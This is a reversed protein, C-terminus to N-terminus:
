PAQFRRVWGDWSGTHIVGHDVTIASVQEEHARLEVQLVGNLDRIEIHGDLFGLYVADDGMTVVSLGRPVTFDLLGGASSRVTGDRSFVWLDDGVPAAFSSGPARAVRSLTGGGDGVVLELVEGTRDVLGARTGDASPVVSTYTLAPRNLGTQVETGRLVVPGGTFPLGVIWDDALKKADRMAHLGPLAPTEGLTTSAGVGVVLWGDGVPVASKVTGMGPIPIRHRADATISEVEGDITAMRETGQVALSALGPVHWSWAETPLTHVELTTNAVYLRDTLGIARAPAAQVQLILGATALSWVQVGATASNTVVVDGAFAAAELYGVGELRRVPSRPAGSWDFRAYSGRIGMAVFGEREEKLLLVDEGLQHAVQQVSTGDVPDVQFLSEHGGVWWTADDPNWIPDTRFGGRQTLSLIGGQREPDRVAHRDGDHALLRGDRHAVHALVQLYGLDLQEGSPYIRTIQTDAVWVVDDGDFSLGELSAEDRRWRVSGDSLDRLEQLGPRTCLWTTELVHVDECGELPLTRVPASPIPLWALGRGAPTETVNAARQMWTRAAATRGARAERWGLEVMAEVGGPVPPAPLLLMTSALAGVGALALLVPWRRPARPALADRLRRAVVGGDAPRATPSRQLCAAALEGLPGEPPKPKGGPVWFSPDPPAGTLALVLLAGLAWVDARMDAQAGAAQEPAMYGPTGLAVGTRTLITSTPEDVFRGLGWDIIVPHGDHLMVNSPKLDRHVVGKAHAHAIAEAVELLAQLQAERPLDRLDGGELWPLVLCLGDADERVDLVPVIGPHFLRAGVHAERRLRSESDPVDARARKLAVQRRMVGDYARWVRGMGGSGVEELLQYRDNQSTREFDTSFAGSLPETM